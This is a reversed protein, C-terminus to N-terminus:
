GWDQSGPGDNIPLDCADGREKERGGGEKRREVTMRNRSKIKIKNSMRHIKHERYTKSHAHTHM